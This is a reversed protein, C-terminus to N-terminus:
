AQSDDDTDDDNIGLAQMMQAAMSAARARREDDPLGQLRDRGQQLQRMTSEFEELGGDESLEDASELSVELGPDRAHGNLQSPDMSGAASRQSQDHAHEVGSSPEPAAAQWAGMQEADSNQQAAAASASSHVPSHELDAAASSHFRAQTAHSAAASSDETDRGFGIGTSLGGSQPKMRLGPWTHAQLLVKEDHDTRM